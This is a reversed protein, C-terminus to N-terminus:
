IYALNSCCDQLGDVGTGVADINAFLSNAARETLQVTDFKDKATM